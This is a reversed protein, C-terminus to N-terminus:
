LRETAIYTKMGRSIHLVVGHDKLVQEIATGLELLSNFKRSKKAVIGHTKNTKIRVLGSTLGHKPRVKGSDSIGDTWFRVKVEIMKEGYKSERDDLSVSKAM